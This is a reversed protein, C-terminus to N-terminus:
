RKYREIYGSGAKIIESLIKGFFNIANDFKKHIIEGNKLSQKRLVKLTIRNTKGFKKKLIAGYLLTWFM